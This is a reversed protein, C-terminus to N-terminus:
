ISLLYSYLDVTSDLGIKACIRQKRKKSAGPTINLLMAIENVSLQLYVLSLYRFDNQNLAPHKEALKLFLEPHTERTKCLFSELHGADTGIEKIRALFARNSSADGEASLYASVEKMLNDKAAISLEHCKLEEIYANLRLQLESQEERSRRLEDDMKMFELESSLKDVKRKRNLYLCVLTLVLMASLSLLLWIRANLAAIKSEEEKKLLGFRLTSNHHYSKQAFSHVSDMMLLASDKYEMAKMLNGTKQYVDSYDKYLFYRSIPDSSVRAKDLLELASRRDGGGAKVLALRRLAESRLTSSEPLVRVLSDYIMVAMAKNDSKQHIEAEMNRLEWYLNDKPTLHSRELISTIIYLANGCNGLAMEIAALNRMATLAMVSDNLRVSLDHLRRFIKGAEVNDGRMGAIVGRNNLAKMLSVSDKYSESIEYAEENLQTAEEFDDIYAYIRSLMNLCTVYEETFGNKHSIERAETLIDFSALINNSDHERRASDILARVQALSKDRDGDGCSVALSTAFLWISLLICPFLRSGGPKYMDDFRKM